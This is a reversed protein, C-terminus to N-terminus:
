AVVVCNRSKDKAVYMAADARRMLAEVSEAADQCAVVGISVTCPVIHPGSGAAIRARVREAVDRAAQVDCGPLFVAFEEGGFRGLVDQARIEQRCDEVIRQLTLDGAEHGHTDNVNKFHDADLLLMGVSEHNEAALARERRAIEFFSRRNLAGTLPDISAQVRLRDEARRQETLDTAIISFGLPSTGDKDYLASISTSAWYQRGDKRVRWSEFQHSGNRRALDLRKSMPSKTTGVRGVLMDIHRGMTEDSRYDDMREAARNWSTIMGNPDVTCVSYQTLGDLVAHLREESLRVFRERNAAASVDTMVAVFTDPDVKQLTVAVITTAAGSTRGPFTVRHEDCVKGARGEFRRAMEAVEPALPELLDFLNHLAGNQAVPMLLQAGYPNMLLIKGVANLRAIAVPCLYLLQLLEIQERELAAPAIDATAREAVDM